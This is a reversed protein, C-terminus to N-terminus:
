DERIFVYRNNQYQREAREELAAVTKGLLSLIGEYNETAKSQATQEQAVAKAKEIVNRAIKKAAQQEPTEEKATQSQAAALVTSLYLTLVTLAAKQFSRFVVKM